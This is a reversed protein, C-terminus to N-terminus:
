KIWLPIFYGLGAGLLAWFVKDLISLVVRRTKAREMEARIGERVQRTIGEVAEQPIQALMQAQETETELVALHEELRLLMNSKSEVEAFLGEIAKSAASLHARVAAVRDEQAEVRTTLWWTEIANAVSRSIIDDEAVESDTRNSIVEPGLLPVLDHDPSRALADFLRKM